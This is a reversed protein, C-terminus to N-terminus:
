YRAELSVFASTGWDTSAADSLPMGLRALASLRIRLWANLDTAGSLLLGFNQSAALPAPRVDMFWSARALLRAGHGPVLDSQVWASRGKLYGMEESYGAAM